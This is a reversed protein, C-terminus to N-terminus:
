WTCSTLVIDDFAFNETVNPDFTLKWIEDFGVFSESYTVSTDEGLSIITTAVITGDEKEGTIQVGIPEDGWANAFKM